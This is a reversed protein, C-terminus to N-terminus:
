GNRVKRPHILFKPLKIMKNKMFFAKFIGVVVIIPVIVLSMLISLMFLTYKLGVRKAKMAFTEKQEVGYKEGIKKVTKCGCGM